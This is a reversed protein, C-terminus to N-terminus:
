NGRAVAAEDAPLVTQEVYGHAYVAPDNFRFSASVTLDCRGRFGFWILVAVAALALLAAAAIRKMM